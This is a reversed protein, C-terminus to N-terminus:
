DSTKHEHEYWKLAHHVGRWQDCQECSKTDVNDTSLWQGEKKRSNGSLIIEGFFTHVLNWGADNFM